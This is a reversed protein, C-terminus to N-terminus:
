TLAIGRYLERARDLVAVLDGLQRDRDDPDFRGQDTALRQLDDLMDLCWRASEARAVPRGDVDVYVPSTHAFVPAGVTYPDTGGHAAAALWTGPEGLVIEHELVDDRTAAVEGDPGYLALREVGSGAVEARVPARDGPYRDLQAGPGHGDVDLTLWPGNTVLTRGARIADTFAEVSLSSGALQAYVRGWGPPNSAPAPGRAFSLFTDTGATAALRLGCSLLHHYLVLAGRDDFCSVLEVADVVGLAADAILERAEVMRYPQFLETADEGPAFVPHAYTTVAGRDQLQGCAVSNPPWDWPHETGEHGTHLLAPLATLGLGHVHGLLDNRFELGARALTREDSWLDTGATSELLELDYVLSGGLNGAALQMLHLGEGRQMREADAPHLVHDGSYNLHVHLDAGYWGAAAPDFRRTPHYTLEVTSGADPVIDYEQREFEMGRAATVRLPGAPVPLTVSGPGTHFFPQDSADWKSPVNMAFWAGGATDVVSWRAGHESTLRLTAAPVAVVAGAVEIRRDGSSIEIPPSTADWDLTRLGAGGAAVLMPEGAITVTAERDLESDIVVDLQATSEPIVPLPTGTRATLEGSPTLRVLVLGAPVGDGIAARVAGAWDGSAAFEDFVPGLRSFRAWRFFDPLAQEGWGFGQEDRMRRYRAVMEIVAPPLELADEEECCM